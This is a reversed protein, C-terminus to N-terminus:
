VKEKKQKLGRVWIMWLLFVMGYIIGPFVVTHLMENYQPYKYLAIALMAIRIINVGYILVSGALIFLLTKKWRQAFAVVFAIFLIIISVANCGEIIRALYVSNVFLKMTPQSEHPTVMADYGMGNLVNSSQKAVLHTIFDPPYSSGKSSQLYWSYLFTLVLYTGLFLVVFRIVSKYRLFIDKM